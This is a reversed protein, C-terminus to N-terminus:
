TLCHKTALSVGKGVSRMKNCPFFLTLCHVTVLCLEGCSPEPLLDFTLLPEEPPIRVTASLCILFCLLCALLFFGVRLNDEGLLVSM